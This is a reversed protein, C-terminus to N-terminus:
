YEFPGLECGTGMCPWGVSVGAAILDSGAALRLFGLRLLSGDPQRPGDVGVSSVSAFDANTITVPLDWSNHDINTKVDFVVETKGNKYSINNRVFYPIGKVLGFHFGGCFSGPMAYCNEFSINNFLEMNCTANNDVIGWARNQFLPNRNVKRRLPQGAASTPGLKYGNGDGAPEFTGPKFGNWFAWSDEIVIMGENEWLDVGDDSNQWMRCGRITNTATADSIRLTLGDSGGWPDSATLPDSNHHFDSNLILNGTAKGTAPASVSMGFGNHHVNLLEFTNHNVDLAVIAYEYSDSATQKFGTLELGKFHLYDGTISVGRHGPYGPGPTIIPVESPYAWVKITSGATGSKGALRQPASLKYTGGRMYVLAGPKVVTWAKTLTAFPKDITGPNADNGDPAVYYDAKYICPGAQAVNSCCFGTEVAVSGCRCRRTVSGEGCLPDDVPADKGPSDAVATDDSSVDDNSADLAGGDFPGDSPRDGGDDCGGGLGAALLAVTLTWGRSISM